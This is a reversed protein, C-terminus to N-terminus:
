LEEAASAAAFLFLSFIETMEFNKLSERFRNLETKKSM